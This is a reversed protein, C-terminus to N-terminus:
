QPFDTVDEMSVRERPAPPKLILPTPTLIDREHAKLECGTPDVNIYNKIKNWDPTKPLYEEGPVLYDVKTNM